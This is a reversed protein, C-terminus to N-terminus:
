RPSASLPPDRGCDDGALVDNVKAGTANKINKIDDLDFLVAEFMRYPGVPQNFRTKPTRIPPMPIRGRAMDLAHKGVDFGGRYMGKVMDVSNRVTNFTGRTLM